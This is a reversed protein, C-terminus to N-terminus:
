TDKFNRPYGDLIYGRNRCDNESLKAKMLMYLYKDKLRIVIEERTVPPGKKKNNEQEEMIEDKKEEIMARIEDGVEGPYKDVLAVADKITIRPINYYQSMVEGYHSKGSAPPGTVFIKVPNLGRYKNFEDNLQRMNKLLGRKCHWPFKLKEAEAEPDEADDPPADDKLVPSPKMKLNISLFETWDEDIVDELSM